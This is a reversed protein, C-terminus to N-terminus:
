LRNFAAFITPVRVRVNGVRSESVGTFDPSLRCIHLRMYHTFGTM